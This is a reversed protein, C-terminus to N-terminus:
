DEKCERLEGFALRAVEKLLDDRSDFVAVEMLHHMPSHAPPSTPGLARKESMMIKKNLLKTM